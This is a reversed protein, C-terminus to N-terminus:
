STWILIALIETFKSPTCLKPWWNVKHVDTHGVNIAESYWSQLETDSIVDNESPYFHTVYAQVLEQIASWILLGDNAYPYDEILLRLGHPQTDDPVAM